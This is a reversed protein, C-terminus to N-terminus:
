ESGPERAEAGKGRPGSVQACLHVLSEYQGDTGRHFSLSSIAALGLSGLRGLNWSVHPGIDWTDAELSDDSIQEETM